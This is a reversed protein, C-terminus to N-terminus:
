QSDGEERNIKRQHRKRLGALRRLQFARRDARRQIQRQEALARIQNLRRTIEAALDDGASTDPEDQPTENRPGQGTV